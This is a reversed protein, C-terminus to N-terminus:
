RADHELNKLHSFFRASLALADPNLDRLFAPTILCRHCQTSFTMQDNQPAFHAVELHRLVNGMIGVYSRSSSTIRVTYWKSTSAFSAISRIQEETRLGKLFDQRRQWNKERSGPGGFVEFSSCLSIERYNPYSGAYLKISQLMSLDRQIADVDYDYTSGYRNLLPGIKRIGGRIYDEYDYIDYMGRHGFIVEQDDYEKAHGLSSLFDLWSYLIYLSDRKINLINASIVIEEPVCMTDELDDPGIKAQSHHYNNYFIQGENQIDYLNGFQIDRHRDEFPALMWFVVADVGISQQNKCRKSALQALLQKGSLYPEGRSIDAGHRILLDPQIMRVKAIFDEKSITISTINHVRLIRKYREPVSNSFLIMRLVCSDGEDLLSDRYELIRYLHNRDLDNIQVEVIVIAGSKDQFILDPRFGAIIPQQSVLTLEEGLFMLPYDRIFEELLKESYDREM